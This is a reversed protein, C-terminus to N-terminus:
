GQAVVHELRADGIVLTLSAGPPGRQQREPSSSTRGASNWSEDQPQAAAVAHGADGRHGRRYSPFLDLDHIVANAKDPDVVQYRLDILGGAATVGVLKIDIGYRAAMGDATVLTTGDRIDAKRGVM